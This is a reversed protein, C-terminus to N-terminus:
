LAAIAAAYTLPPTNAILELTAERGIENPDKGPANDFNVVRVEKHDMLRFALNVATRYYGKDAIIVVEECASGVIRQFQYSSWAWGLTAVAADGVTIADFVGELVYITRYEDLADENYIIQDRGIGVIETRPNRYKPEQGVFDRGIYYRLLGERKIPIIIRGFWCQTRDKNRTDVYGFGEDHLHEVDLGRSELLKIANLGVRSPNSNLLPMYGPPMSVTANRSPARRLVETFDIEAENQSAVIDRAQTYSLGGMRMIVDMPSGFWPCSWCKTRRTGFNVAFKGRKGCFPCDGSWWGNTSRALRLPERLAMYTKGADM